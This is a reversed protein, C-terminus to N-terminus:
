GGGSPKGPRSRQQAKRRQLNQRLANAERRRREEPGGGSRVRRDPDRPTSEPPKRSSDNGLSPEM